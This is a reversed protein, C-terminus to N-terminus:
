VGLKILDTGCNPCYVAEMSVRFMTNGCECKIHPGPRVYDFVLHGKHAKCSPCDYWMQGVEQAVTFEHQCDICRCVNIHVHVSKSEPKPQNEDGYDYTM